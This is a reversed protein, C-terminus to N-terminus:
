SSTILFCHATRQGWLGGVHCLTSTPIYRLLHPRQMILDNKEREQPPKIEKKVNSHRHITTEWKHLGFRLDINRFPCFECQWLKMRCHQRRETVTLIRFGNWTCKCLIMGLPRLWNGWVKELEPSMISLIVSIKHFTPCLWLHYACKRAGKQKQTKPRWALAVASLFQGRALSNHCSHWLTLMSTHLHTWQRSVSDAQYLVTCDSRKDRKNEGNYRM